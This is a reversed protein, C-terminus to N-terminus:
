FKEYFRMNLYDRSTIPDYKNSNDLCHITVDEDPNVFFALSQRDVMKKRVESPILVRHKTAILKDATWRQMLDGINVVITGPIPPAPEYEGERMKVELGGINDQILLTLTGYDSHEGCRVQGQITDKKSTLAPYFISRINSINGKQGICSHCKRLFHKDELKLGVSIVDFVRLALKVCCSFLDSHIKQFNPIDPPWIGCEPIMGYAEKYDGAPRNPNLRERELGIWGFYGDDPKACKKKEDVTQNFFQKSSELALRVQEDPIGHNNLYCFGIEKLAQCMENGLKELDEDSISGENEVDLGYTKFDIIPIKATESM